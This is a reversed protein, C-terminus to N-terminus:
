LKVVQSDWKKTLEALNFELEEKQHQAEELRMRAVVTTVKALIPAVICSQSFTSSCYTNTLDGSDNPRTLYADTDDHEYDVQEEEDDIPIPEKSPGQVLIASFEERTRLSDRAMPKPEPSALRQKKSSPPPPSIHLSRNEKGQGRGPVGQHVALETPEQINISVKKQPTPHESPEEWDEDSVGKLTSLWDSRVNM